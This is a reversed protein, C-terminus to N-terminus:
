VGQWRTARRSYFIVHKTLGYPKEEDDDSSSSTEADSAGAGHAHAGAAADLAAFLPSFREQLEDLRKTLTRKLTRAEHAGAHAGADQGVSGVVVADVSDKLQYVNADIQALETKCLTSLNPLQPVKAEIETLENELQCLRALAGVSGSM